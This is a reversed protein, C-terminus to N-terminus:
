NTRENQPATAPKGASNLHQHIIGCIATLDYADLEEIAGLPLDTATAVLELTLAHDDEPHKVVAAMKEEVTIPRVVVARILGGQFELPFALRLTLM